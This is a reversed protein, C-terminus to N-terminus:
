NQQQHQHLGAREARPPEPAAAVRLRPARRRGGRVPRVPGLGRLAERQIERRHLLVHIVEHRLHLVQRLRQVRAGRLLEVVVHPQVKQLIRGDGAVVATGGPVYRDVM